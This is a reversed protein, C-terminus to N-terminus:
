HDLRVLALPVGIVGTSGVAVLNQPLKLAHAVTQTMRVAADIGAQGTCANANGSNCIVAQCQHHALHERTVLISAAKVRNRTYMVAATCPVESVILALDRKDNKKRIGCWVGGAKFGQPACVGGDIQKM